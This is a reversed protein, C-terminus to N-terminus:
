YANSFNPRAIGEIKCPLCYRYPLSKIAVPRIKAIRLPRSWRPIMQVTEAEGSGSECGIVKRQEMETGWKGGEAGREEQDLATGRPLPKAGRRWGSSSGGHAISASQPKRCRISVVPLAGYPPDRGLYCALSQFRPAGQKPARPPAGAAAFASSRTRMKPDEEVLWFQPLSPELDLRDSVSKAAPDDRQL